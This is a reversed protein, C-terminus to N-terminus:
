IIEDYVGHYIINEPKKNPLHDDFVGIAKCGLKFAIEAIVGAHGFYGYLILEIKSIAM